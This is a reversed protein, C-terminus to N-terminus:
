IVRYSLHVYDIKVFSKEELSKEFSFTNALFIVDTVFQIYMGVSLSRSTVRQVKSVCM